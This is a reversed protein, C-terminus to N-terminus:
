PTFKFIAGYGNAGGASTTGYFNGNSDLILNSFPAWGDSGGTFEYLTTATWQGNGAPSLEFITGCGGVPQCGGLGGGTTTGYLNGASDLVLSGAPGSGYGPFSHLSAYTWGGHGDSQLTFVSGAQTGYGPLAGRTTGYYNGASDEIMSAMPVAGDAGGCFDHLLREGWGSASDTLLFITGFGCEGYATNTGLVRGQSDFSVGGVPYAGDDGYSYGTFSFLVTEIWSGGSPSLEYVNGCPNCSGGGGPLGGGYYATGYLNAGNFAVESQPLDGGTTFRRLITEQWPCLASKCATFQPKLNFVTGCGGTCYGSTGGTETTGYLSGDPGFIVRAVPNSGDAGAQFSYLPSLLWGSQTSALKFVTGYGAGGKNTTGYLNGNRDVTLGALPTAGDMQGSFSHLVTLTQAQSPPTLLLLTLACVGALLAGRLGIRTRPTM